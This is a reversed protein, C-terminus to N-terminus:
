TPDAGSDATVRALSPVRMEARKAPKPRIAGKASNCPCPMSGMAKPWHDDQDGMNQRGQHLLLRVPLHHSPQVVLM